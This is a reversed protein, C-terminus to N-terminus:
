AFDPFDMWMPYDIGEWKVRVIHSTRGNEGPKAIEIVTGVLGRRAMVFRGTSVVEQYLRVKRGNVVASCIKGRRTRFTDGLVVKEIAKDFPVIM